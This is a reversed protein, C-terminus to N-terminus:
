RSLARLFIAQQEVLGSTQSSQRRHNDVVFFSAAIRANRSEDLRSLEEARVARLARAGAKWQKVWARKEEEDM